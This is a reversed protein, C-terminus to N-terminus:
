TGQIAILISDSDVVLNTVFVVEEATEGVNLSLLQRWKGDRCCATRQRVGKSVEHDAVSVQEAGCGNQVHLQSVM